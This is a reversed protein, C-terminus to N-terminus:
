DLQLGIIAALKKATDAYRIREVKGGRVDLVTVHNERRPFMATQAPEYGLLVLYPFKRMRPLAFMSTVLSPMGSIDAVYHIGRESLNGSDVQEFLEQAAAAGTRGPAFLVVSRDVAVPHVKGHQDPYNLSGLEEGVSLSAAWLTSPLLFIVFIFRIYPM